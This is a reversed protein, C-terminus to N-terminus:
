NCVSPRVFPTTFTKCWNEMVKWAQDRERNNRRTDEDEWIRSFSEGGASDSSIRDCGVCDFTQASRRRRLGGSKHDAMRVGDTEV